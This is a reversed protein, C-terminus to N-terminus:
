KRVYNVKLVTIICQVYFRKIICCLNSYQQYIANRAYPAHSITHFYLSSCGFRMKGEKNSFRYWCGSGWLYVARVVKSKFLHIQVGRCRQSSILAM